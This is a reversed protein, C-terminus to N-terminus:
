FFYIGTNLIIEFTSLYSPLALPLSASGYSARPGPVRCYNQVMKIYPGRSSNCSSAEHLRLEGSRHHTCGTQVYVDLYLRFSPTTSPPAVDTRQLTTGVGTSIDTSSVRRVTFTFVPPQNMTWGDVSCSV